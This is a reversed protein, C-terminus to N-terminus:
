RLYLIEPAPYVEMKLHNTTVIIASTNNSKKIKINTTVGGGTYHTLRVAILSRLDTYQANVM